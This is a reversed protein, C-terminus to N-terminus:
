QGGRVHQMRKGGVLGLRLVFFGRLRFSPVLFERGVRAVGCRRVRAGARAADAQESLALRLIHFKAIWVFFVFSGM